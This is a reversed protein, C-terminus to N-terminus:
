YKTKGEQENSIVHVPLPSVMNLTADDTLSQNLDNINQYLDHLILDLEVQANSSKREVTIADASMPLNDYVSLRNKHKHQPSYYSETKQQTTNETNIRKKLDAKFNSSEVGMNFSGTRYNVQSGNGMDIYGNAIVKPFAGPRYETDLVYVTEDLANSNHNAHTEPSSSPFFKEGELKCTVASKVTPTGGIESPDATSSPITTKATSSLSQPAAPPQATTPSIDVCGLTQMRDELSGSDVVTPQSIELFQTGSKLSTPSKRPKRLSEMKKLFNKASKMRESAARRLAPSLLLSSSSHGESEKSSSLSRGTRAKPSSTMHGDHSDQQSLSEENDTIVSDHSSCSQLTTRGDDTDNTDSRM